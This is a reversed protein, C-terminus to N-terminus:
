DLASPDTITNHDTLALFQYGAAAFWDVSQQPTLRGDSETTHCHLNGRLWEGSLNGESAWPNGDTSALTM